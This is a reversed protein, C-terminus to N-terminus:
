PRAEPARRVLSHARSRGRTAPQRITSLCPMNPAVEPCIALIEGGSGVFLPWRGCAAVGRACPQRKGCSRRRAAAFRRLRVKTPMARAARRGMATCAYLEM